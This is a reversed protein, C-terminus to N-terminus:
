KSLVCICMDYVSLGRYVFVCVVSTSDGMCLDVWVCVCMCDEGRSARGVKGTSYDM